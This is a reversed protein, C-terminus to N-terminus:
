CIHMFAHIHQKHAHLCPNINWFELFLGTKHQVWIGRCLYHLLMLLSLVHTLPLLAVIHSPPTSFSIYVSVSASYQPCDWGQVHLITVTASPLGHLVEQDTLQHLACGGCEVNRHGIIDGDFTGFLISPALWIPQHFPMFSYVYM